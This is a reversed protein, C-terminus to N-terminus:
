LTVLFRTLTSVYEWDMELVNSAPNYGAIILKLVHGKNTLAVLSVSMAAIKVIQVGSSSESADRQGPTGPDLVVTSGNECDDRSGDMDDVSYEWGIVGSCDM